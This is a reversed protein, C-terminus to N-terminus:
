WWGQDEPLTCCAVVNNLFSPMYMCHCGEALQNRSRWTVMGRQRGVQNIAQGQKIMALGCQALQAFVEADVAHERPKEAAHLFM